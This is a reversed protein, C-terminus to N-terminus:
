SYRRDSQAAMANFMKAADRADLAGVSAAVRPNGWHPTQVISYIGRCERCFRFRQVDGGFYEHARASLRWPALTIREHEMSSEMEM